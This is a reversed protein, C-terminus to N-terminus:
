VSRVGVRIRPLTACIASTNLTNSLAWHKLLEAIIKSEKEPSIKGDFKAQGLVAFVMTPPDGYMKKPSLRWADFSDQLRSPSRVPSAITEKLSNGRLSKPRHNVLLTVFAPMGAELMAIIKIKEEPLGNLPYLSEWLRAMQEWQPHPYLANGMACSLKVRIYPFAHIDSTIRFVFARPLSVVSILGLTSGIGLKAVSWFDPIIESIWLNWFPWPSLKERNKQLGNLIPKISSVLDLLASGQHAIEHFLSTSISSGIMRERPVRIIAVPNGKGGPLRTRARRIAGGRGRDLYCMVPPAKYYMSPLRLADAAAADLGAIWVGTDSESRQNLVDSFIDVQALVNNFRIRLISLRRQAESPDISITGSQEIQRVYDRVLVRLEACEKETFREIAKLADQSISAAPVMPMRLSFARVGDLRTLLSRAENALFQQSSINQM